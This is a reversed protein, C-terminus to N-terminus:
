LSERDRGVCLPIYGARYPFLVTAVTGPVNRDHGGGSELPSARRPEGPGSDVRFVSVRENRFVLAYRESREMGAVLGASHRYPTGLVPYRGMPVYVYDPRVGHRSLTATLCRETPCRSAAGLMRVHRHYARPGEWEAGWRSVLLTREGFLPFWEAAYSLVVFSADASTSARVWAMAELDAGDVYNPTTALGAAGTDGAVYGSGALAALVVAAGVALAAGSLAFSSAPSSRWATTGSRAAVERLVAVVLFTGAFLVFRPQSVTFGAVVLWAALLPWGTAAGVVAGAGLGVVVLFAVPDTSPGTSALRAVVGGVVGGHTGMAGLFVHPGHTAAVTLWWPAALLAGGVGVVLGDVVGSAVGYGGGSGSGEEDTRALGGGAFAVLYSAALFQATTPHTLLTLLFCALALGLWRREGSRVRRLGAYLGVVAFLFAPARVLGGATLHWDLLQPNVAVLTTAFSASYRSGLLERALYYTPVLSAVVVPGPGWRSLALPGVGTADRVLAIAYIGLPPYAFPVGGPTYYPVTRPLAYGHDSVARAMAFFLGAGHAPYPNTRLYVLYVATGAVVSPAIWVLDDRSPTM